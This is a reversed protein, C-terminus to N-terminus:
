LEATQVCFLSCHVTPSFFFTQSKSWHPILCHQMILFVSRMLMRVLSLLLLVSFPFICMNFLTFVFCHVQLVSHFGIHVSCDSCLSVINQEAQLHAHQGVSLSGMM